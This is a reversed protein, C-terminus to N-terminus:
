DVYLPLSGVEYHQEGVEVPAHQPLHVHKKFDSCRLKM